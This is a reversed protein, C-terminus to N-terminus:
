IVGSRNLSASWDILSKLTSRDGEIDRLREKAAEVLGAAIRYEVLAQTVDEEGDALRPALTVSHAEAMRVIAKARIKHHATEKEAANEVAQHYERLYHNRFRVINRGAERADDVDLPQKIHLPESLTLPGSM